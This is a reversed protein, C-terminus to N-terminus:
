KYVNSVKVRGWLPIWAITTAFSNIWELKWWFRTWMKFECWTGVILICEESCLFLSMKNPILSFHFYIVFSSAIVSLVFMNKIIFTNELPIFKVIKIDKKVLKSGFRSTYKKKEIKSFYQKKRIREIYFFLSINWCEYFFLRQWFFEDVYM